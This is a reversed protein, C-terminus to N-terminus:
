GVMAVEVRSWYVDLNSTYVEHGPQGYLIKWGPGGNWCKAKDEDTVMETHIQWYTTWILVSLRRNGLCDQAKYASGLKANVEDVVGQRIQLCGYAHNALSLDGKANDDGGSEVQIQADLLSKKAPESSFLANLKANTLDFVNGTAPISYQAQFAKVALLTQPGFNGNPVAAFFGLYQLCQQLVLVEPNNTGYSLHLTFTHQPKMIQTFAMVDYIKGNFNSYLYDGYGRDGWNEGWQNVVGQDNDAGTPNDAYLTLRHLDPNPTIPPFLRANGFNGVPLTIDVVKYQTLAERLSSIDAPITVYGPMKYKLAETVAAATIAAPDIYEEWTLTRDDPLTDTTPCGMTVATQMVIRPYTGQSDPAGDANNLKAMITFFRPSFNILRVTRALWYRKMLRAAAYCPCDGFPDQDMIPVQKILADAIPTLPDLAGVLYVDAHLRDRGDPPNLLTSSKM